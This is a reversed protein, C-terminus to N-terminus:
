NQGTIVHGTSGDKVRTWGAYSETKTNNGTFNITYVNTGVPDIEVAATNDGAGTYGKETAAFTCDKINIVTSASGHALICKSNGNLTCNNFTVKNAGWTWFYGNRFDFECNNFVFDNANNLSYAGVFACDNFTAGMYAFGKYNGTNSTTDITIGNFTVNGVGAGGGGFGYDCGDEGENMVKIVANRSGTITLTKGGCGNVNYKGDALVINTVGNAVAATLEDSNTVKAAISNNSESFDFNGVDTDSEYIYKGQDGATTAFTSDTIKVTTDENLDGIVVGPKESLEFTCDDVEVSVVDDGYAEHIKLGRTGSFTCKEFKATGGEVWAGYWSNVNNPVACNVLESNGSLMISDEFTVNEAKLSDFELYGHEWSSENDGITEDKVTINRLTVDTIPNASGYGAFTITADEDAGEITKGAMLLAKSNAYSGTGWDYMLNGDVIITSVQSDQIAALLEDDTTVTARKNTANEGAWPNDKASIGGFAAKLAADADVPMNVTQCAQSVVLIEYTDGFEKVIDNTAHKDMVVKVLSPKTEANPALADKYVVYALYYKTGDIEVAENEIWKAETAFEAHINEKFEEWSLNGAEFALLTRVYADSTGVNEVTVVKDIAGVVVNANEFKEEPYYAPYLPQNQEFPNGEADEENQEIDVNGLTMVNVAEDTDTLYALTGGMAMTMALVLSVILLLKRNKMKGSGKKKHLCHQVIIMVIIYCINEM